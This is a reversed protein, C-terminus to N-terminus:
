AKLVHLPYHRAVHLHVALGFREVNSVVGNDDFSIVVVQRDIEQRPLAGRTQYRSKVYFWGVDNLLGQASPRGVAAAVTEQTDQGVEVLALEAETPVYGHNRYIPQCASLVVFLGLVVLGATLHAIIGRQPPMEAIQNSKAAVKIM